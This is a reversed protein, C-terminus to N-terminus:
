SVTGSASATIPGGTVTVAARIHTQVGEFHLSATGGAGVYSESGRSRWTVGDASDSLLIVISGNIAPFTGGDPSPTDTGLVTLQMDVVSTGGPMTGTLTHPSGQQKFSQQAFFPVTTTAM